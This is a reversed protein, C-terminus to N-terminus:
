VFDNVDVEDDGKLWDCSTVSPPVDVNQLLVKIEKVKAAKIPLIDVYAPCVDYSSWAPGDNYTKIVVHEADSYHTVHFIYAIQNCM